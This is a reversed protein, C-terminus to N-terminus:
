DYLVGPNDVEVPPAVLPAELCVPHSHALQGGPARRGDSQGNWRLNCKSPGGKPAEPSGGAAADTAAAGECPKSEPVGSLNDLPWVRRATSALILEHEFHPSDTASTSSGPKREGAADGAPPHLSRKCRLAPLAFTSVQALRSDEAQQQREEDRHHTRALHHTGQLRPFWRRGCTRRRAL